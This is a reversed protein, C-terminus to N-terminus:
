NLKMRNTNRDNTLCFIKKQIKYIEYIRRVLTNGDNDDDDYIMWWGIESSKASSSIYRFKQFSIQLIKLRFPMTEFFKQKFSFIRCVIKEKAGDEEMRVHEDNM